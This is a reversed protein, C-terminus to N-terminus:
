EKVETVEPVYNKCDKINGLEARIVSGNHIHSMISFCKGEEEKLWYERSKGPATERIWYVPKYGQETLTNRQKELAPSHIESLGGKYVDKLAKSAELQTQCEDIHITNLEKITEGKFGLALCSKSRDNWWYQRRGYSSSYVVEYGHNQLSKEGENLPNNVISKLTEPYPSQAVASHVCLSAAFLCFLMSTRTETLCKASKRM